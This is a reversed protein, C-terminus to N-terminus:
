RLLYWFFLYTLESLVKLKGYSNSEVVYTRSLGINYAVSEHFVFVCVACAIYPHVYRCHTFRISYPPDYTPPPSFFGDDTIKIGTHVCVCKTGM